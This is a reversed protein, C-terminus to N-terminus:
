PIIETVIQIGDPWFKQNDLYKAERIIMKYRPPFLGEGELPYKSLSGLYAGKTGKPVIIVMHLGNELDIFHKRPYLSTSLFGKEIITKGILEEPTLHAFEGLAMKTTGRFALITEPVKAEKLASTILAIERQLPQAYIENVGERAVYNLLENDKTYSKLAEKEEPLLRNKWQRFNQTGWQLLDDNYWVPKEIKSIWTYEPNNLINNLKEVEFPYKKTKLYGSLNGIMGKFRASVGVSEGASVTLVPMTVCHKIKGAKGAAKVQGGGLLLTSGFVAAEGQLKGMKLPDKQAEAFTNKGWQYIGGLLPLPNTLIGAVTKGGNIVKKKYEQPREKVNYALNITRSPSSNLYALLSVTGTAFDKTGELVGLGFGIKELNNKKGERYLQNQASLGTRKELASFGKRTLLSVLGASVNVLGDAKENFSKIFEDSTDVKNQFFERLKFEIGFVPPSICLLGMALLTTYAVIIVKRPHWTQM